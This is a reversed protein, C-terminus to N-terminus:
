GDLHRFVSKVGTLLASLVMLQRFRKSACTETVMQYVTRTKPHFAETQGNHRVAVERMSVAVGVMIFTATASLLLVFRIPSIKIGLVDLGKSPVAFRCIDTAPGALLAAVNMMVYFLGFGYTRYRETTYRKIGIILVPLGFAMGLPM